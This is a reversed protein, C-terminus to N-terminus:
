GGMWQYKQKIQADLESPVDQVLTTPFGVLSSSVAKFLTHCNVTWQGSHQRNPLATWLGTCLDGTQQVYQWAAPWVGEVQENLSQKLSGLRM